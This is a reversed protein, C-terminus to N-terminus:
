SARARLLEMSPTATLRSEAWENYESGDDLTILVRPNLGDAGTPAPEVAVVLHGMWLYGPELLRAFTTM